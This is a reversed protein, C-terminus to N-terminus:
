EDETGQEQTSAAARLLLFTLNGKSDGSGLVGIWGGFLEHDLAATATIRRDVIEDGFRLDTQTVDFELINESACALILHESSARDSKRQPALRFLFPANSVDLQRTRRDLPLRTPFGQSEESEGRTNLRPM